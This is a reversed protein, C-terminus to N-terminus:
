QVHMHIYAAWVNVITSANVKSLPNSRREAPTSPPYPVWAAKVPREPTGIQELFSKWLTDAFKIVPVSLSKKSSHACRFMCMRIVESDWELNLLKYVEEVKSISATLRESHHFYVSIYAQAVLNLQTVNSFLPFNPTDPEQTQLKEAILSAFLNDAEALVAQNTQPLISDESDRPNQPVKVEGVSTEALPVTEGKLNGSTGGLHSLNAFKRKFPPVYSAYTHFLHRLVWHDIASKGDPGCRALKTLIWRAQEIDGLRKCAELLALYTDYNMPLSPNGEADRGLDVMQKALRTAELATDKSKAAVRIIANYADVTPTIGKDITMETWLDFARLTDVDPSNSCAYIMQTYLEVSPTPYAAYRMHYFLDWAQAQRPLAGPAPSRLLGRILARYADMPPM